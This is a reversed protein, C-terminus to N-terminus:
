IEYTVKLYFTIITKLQKELLDNKPKQKIFM